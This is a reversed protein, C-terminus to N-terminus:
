EHTFCFVQYGLAKFVPFRMVRRALDERPSWGYRRFVGNWWKRSKVTVHTPDKCTGQSDLFISGIWWKKSVRRMEGIVDPILDEPIHEMTEFSCVTNFYNDEFPTHIGDIVRVRGGVMWSPAKNIAYESVDVGYANVGRDVFKQVLYGKACGWDLVPGTETIYLLIEVIPPWIWSDTYSSYAVAGEGGDFYSEGFHSYFGPSIIVDGM